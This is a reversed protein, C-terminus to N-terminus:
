NANGDVSAGAVLNLRVIKSKCWKRVGPTNREFAFWFLHCIAVIAVLCLLYMVLSLLKPQVQKGRLVVGGVFVVIPFHFLYLTYSIDSLWKVGRKLFQPFWSEVQLLFLALIAFTAGVAADGGIPLIANLPQSKSACLSALFLTAFSCVVVFLMRKGSIWRVDRLLYVLVGLMWGGGAYLIESPLLILLAAALVALVVSMMRFRPFVLGVFVPFLAYYWFEYALSWLPGNSGYVPAIVTQLFLLNAGFTVSSASYTDLSPGSNWTERFSGQFTEPSFSNTISDALVTFLLAPVLVVWLRSLRALWYNGWSFRCRNRLVSGGVFFGSLVFFVMVAQHGLSTLFYFPWHWAVPAVIEGVDCFVVNRLHGACVILASVGRVLDFWFIRSSDNM